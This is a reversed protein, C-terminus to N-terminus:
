NPWVTYIKVPHLPYQNVLENLKIQLNVSCVISNKTGKQAARVKNLLPWYNTFFKKKTGCAEALLYENAFSMYRVISNSVTSDFKMLMKIFSENENQWFTGLLNLALVETNPTDAIIESTLKKLYDKDKLNGSSRAKVSSLISLAARPTGMANQAILSIVSKPLKYKEAKCVTDILQELTNVELTQLKVISTRDLITKPLKGPENTLLCWTVNEPPEELPKLMASLAPGTQTHLEDLVIIKYDGFPSYESKAIIERMNDIGKDSGVNVETYDPSSKLHNIDVKLMRSAFVRCLTTKGLGTEGVICIASPKEKELGRLIAVADEQGLVEKYSKPRYKTILGAM